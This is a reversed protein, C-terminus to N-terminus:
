KSFLSIYLERQKKFTNIVLAKLRSTDLIIDWNLIYNECNYYKKFIIKLSKLDNSM